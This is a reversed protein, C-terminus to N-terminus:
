MEPLLLGLVEAIAPTLNIGDLKLRKEVRGNTLRDLTNLKSTYYSFSVLDTWRRVHVNLNTLNGIFGFSKLLDCQDKEDLNLRELRFERLNPFFRLSKILPALCGRVGFGSFTLKSLLMTKYFGGFLAEMEEAQLISGNSGTLELEQLSSMEPLSSGLAAAAAPTLSIGNLHLKENIESERSDFTHLVETYCCADRQGESQVKLASLRRIFKLNWLLSCVDQENMNLRELSLQSLNPLFRFRKCLTALCNTLGVNRVTLRYLPLTKEFGGFLAEMEKAELISGDVGVLQLVQLSPMEPLLRGLLAASVPTLSIGDLSLEELTKHTISDMTGIEETCCHAEGLPRGKVTLFKLNPIFRLSGILGCLNREDMNLRRLDLRRLNPLVRFSKILPALCGRSFTVDHLPLAKNLGGFLAEIEDATVVSGNLGTLEFEQLSSMEPLIRGLATAVAPTLCVNYLTLEELTKLPFRDVTHAKAARCDALDLTKGELRLEMLNPTFRLNELLGCLNHEDMDFKALNLEMLNPFFCFSKTLPAISGTVSFDRFILSWLPLVRNFRGFLAEIEEAQFISEPRVGTIELAQLSVMEPLSQGLAATAAQTLIIGNLTLSKSATPRFYDRTNLEATCCDADGLPRTQIKLTTLNRIFPLSELLSCQDTEDMNLKELKLVTLDPFYRFCKTLPALWGAMARFGRLTLECLPMTRNFGGFLGEMEEAQLINGDVGTLELNQLFSMEPLLRGLAAAVSQTLSIGNLELTKYDGLKYGRGTNVKITWCCPHGLSKSRVKIVKLNPIFGFSQLLSCQDREDVNLKELKLESLTPLFPLSKALPSLSGRVSFDSLTLRSLPLTKNFGGFLAEIKDAEFISGDVGTIQLVELSSMEPLLRGLSAVAAPTLRVGHLALGELTHHTINAVLIDVAASSCNSLGLCLTVVNDFMSILSAMKMAGSTTLDCKPINGENTQM